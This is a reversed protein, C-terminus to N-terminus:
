GICDLLPPMTGPFQGPNHAPAAARPSPGSRTQNKARPVSPARGPLARRRALAPGAPDLAMPAAATARLALPYGWPSTTRAHRYLSELLLAIVLKALIWARAADPDQHPLRGLRLLQKLRKFALEVQWRFRYWALVAAADFCPPLTTFLMVYQAAELSRADLQKQKKRAARVLRARAARVLPAPLKVAVLRGEITPSPGSPDCLAVPWVGVKGVRLRRVRALARVRRGQPDLLRPHTWRMRVLVYAGADRLARVGAPRLYNRDGLLVDGATVPTRELMEGGHADTLQHWDCQLTLLDLTYHLRWETGRSGPGQVTTSDIARPRFGEVHPLVERLPESLAQALAQLWGASRRLRKWLAVDSVSGLGALRAQEVTLRLSADSVAHFLLLRLLQAPDALPGGSRQVAGTRRAQQRWGKPLLAVLSAWEEHRADM